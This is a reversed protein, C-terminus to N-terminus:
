ARKSAVIFSQQGFIRWAPRLRLYLKLMALSKPLRSKTIYPLFRVICEDLNYGSTELVEALARDDVPTIHDFFMWYDRACFRVNPQLILLKGGPKLIRHVEQLTRVIDERTLHELFNSMFAYDLSNSELPSLDTSSATIVQIGSAAFERTSPNLDVAVKRAAKINNIFECYGAAIEVISSDPRVYAQFFEQCLVQWMEQRFQVDPTFRREYFAELQQQKEHTQNSM